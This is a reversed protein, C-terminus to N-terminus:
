KEKFFNETKKKSKLYDSSFIKSKKNQFLEKVEDFIKEVGPGYMVFECKETKTCDVNIKKEFTM